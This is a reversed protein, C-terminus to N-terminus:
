GGVKPPVAPKDTPKVESPKDGAPKEGAPKDAAPPTAGDPAPNGQKRRQEDFDPGDPRSFLEDKLGKNIAIQQYERELNLEGDEFIKHVLAFKIKKDPSDNFPIARYQGFYVEKRLVGSAGPETWEKKLLLGDAQSFSYRMRQQSAFAITEIVDVVVSDVTDTGIYRLTYGDESWTVFQDDIPKDWVFVLLTKGGLPSVAGMTKVWAKEGDYVQLFTLPEDNKTLGMGPLEWEERLRGTRKFFQQMKMETVGTPSFKKNVFRTERDKIALLLDKGGIAQLYKDVVEIAKPDNEIKKAAPPTPKAAGDSPKATEPLAPPVTPPAPPTQASIMASFMVLAALARVCQIM